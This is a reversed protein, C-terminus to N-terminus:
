NEVGDGLHNCCVDLLDTVGICGVLGAIFKVPAGGEASAKVTPRASQLNKEMVSKLRYCGGDQQLRGQCIPRPSSGAVVLFFVLLAVM